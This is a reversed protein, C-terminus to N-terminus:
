INSRELNLLYKKVTLGGAYGTLSGNKGIVRHCPIIILIKNKNNAMGVARSAKENGVAIAIDKYSVTKGYPIKVLEHWVKKQFETGVPNIPLDFVQREGLFYESLQRYARKILPTEIMDGETEVFDIYTISGANEAVWIKGIPTQYSFKKM